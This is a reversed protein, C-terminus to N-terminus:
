CATEHTNPRRNVSVTILLVDVCLLCVKKRQMKREEVAQCFAEFQADTAEDITSLAM